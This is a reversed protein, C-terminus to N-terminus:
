KTVEKNTIIQVVAKKSSACEKYKTVTDLIWPALTKGDGKTITDLPKCDFTISESIEPYVPVYVTKITTCGAIITIIFLIVSSKLM